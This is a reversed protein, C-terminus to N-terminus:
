SSGNISEAAVYASSFAWQFNYGGLEGTVNLVEGAFYLGNVALSMMNQDLEGLDVGGKTVEAREFGFTGAPAFRYGNFARLAEIESKKLRGVAIDDINLHDLFAKVFRKPLPLQTSIARKPNKLFSVASKGKLFDAEVYGGNWYLSANLIAPGSVGRHTFLMNGDIRKEGVKIEVDISIGSLDKFWFQPKQVTFGVLAPKPTIVTHGFKRAIDFGISSAGIKKYSLGGTAVLVYRASFKGKSSEMVFLDNRKRLSHIECNLVLSSPNVCKRFTKVLEKAGDACFYRGEKELKLAVGKSRLWKLLKKNDFRDFVKRIKEDRPVYNDIGVYRNTVNCRGGGSISIKAGVSSNHDILIYNKKLISAAMLGSAGAGLILVESERKM